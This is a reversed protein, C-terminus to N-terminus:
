GCYCNCDMKTAGCCQSMVADDSIKKSVFMCWFEKLSMSGIVQPGATSQCLEKNETMVVMKGNGEEYRM